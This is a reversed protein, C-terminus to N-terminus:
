SFLGHVFWHKEPTRFVWLLAGQPTRAIFYDRIVERGDWWGTAVREPGRIISVKEELPVPSPLLLSPRIKPINKLIPHTELPPCLQTTNEPRPDTTQRVGQIADTGLKAQLLSILELPSLSGKQGDFLDSETTHQPGIRNASLIIGVVPAELKVSELTLQSLRQWKSALYDGQASTFLIEAQHPHKDRHLLTLTLEYAVKERLKLFNELQLLLQYLPKELWQFNDVEYLLELSRKFMEPPTYFSVPHKFRGILQGIYNVLEIDFRRALDSMDLKILDGLCRVGVRNLKEVTSKKLETAQLPYASLQRDIKKRDDIIQNFKAQALLRAASPSYGSSFWFEISLTKLLSTIALWYHALGDYLTLMNSARLLIGSPPFLAIDATVMYLWQAIEYLRQEEIDAQYPHVQLHHCLAAANGLGMGQKLGAKKAMENLQTIQGKHVIAIPQEDSGSFLTDLQLRPFHLYLWLTM